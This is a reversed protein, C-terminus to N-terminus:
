ENFLPPYLLDIYRGEYSNMDYDIYIIVYNLFPYKNAYELHEIIFECPMPYKTTNGDDGVNGNIDIFSNISTNSIFEHSNPSYFWNDLDNMINEEDTDEVNENSNSNENIIREKEEEDLTERISLPKVIKEEKYNSIENNDFINKGIETILIEEAEEKTIKKGRLIYRPYKDDGLYAYKKNFKFNKKTLLKNQKTNKKM